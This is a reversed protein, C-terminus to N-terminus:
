ADARSTSDPFLLEFEVAFHDAISKLESMKFPHEGRIKRSVSSQDIGLLDAVAQQKVDHRGMLARVEAAVGAGYPTKPPTTSTM